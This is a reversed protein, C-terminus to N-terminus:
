AKYIVNTPITRSGGTENGYVTITTYVDITLNPNPIFIFENGTVVQATSTLEGAEFVAVSTMEIAGKSVILTGARQDALVATYGGITNGEPSTNPTITILSDSQNVSIKNPSLRVVSMQTTGKPLTVLKHNLAHTEDSCAETIPVGLMTYAPGNENNVDYFTYDIEDDGLAFKTIDLKLGSALKERGKKTLIAEVIIESNDLYAM